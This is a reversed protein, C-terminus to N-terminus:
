FCIILLRGRKYPRAHFCNERSLVLYVGDGIGCWRLGCVMFEVGSRWSRGVVKKNKKKMVKDTWNDLEASVLMRRLKLFVIVSLLLARCFQTVPDLGQVPLLVFQVPIIHPSSLVMRPKFNSFMFREPLRLRSFRELKGRRRVNLKLFLLKLPSIGLMRRRLPSRDIYKDIFLNEPSSGFFAKSPIPPNLLTCRHIFWNLPDIGSDRVLKCLSTSSLNSSLWNSPPKGSSRCGPNTSTFTDLLLRLPSIGLERLLKSGLKNM